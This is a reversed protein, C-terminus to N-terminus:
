HPAGVTGGTGVGITASTSAASPSSSGHHSLGVGIGIAAAAAVGVIVAIMTGSLGGGSAAGTGTTAGAGAATAGASAAAAETLYNTMAITTIASQAEVTASVSIQFRGTNVPKLGVTTARGNADAIVTISRSGNMFIVSPGDSPSSFTVAVGAVPLNNRDRM